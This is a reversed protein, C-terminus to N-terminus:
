WFCLKVQVQGRACEGCARSSDCQPESKGSSVFIGMYNCFVTSKTQSKSEPLDTPHVETKSPIYAGRL